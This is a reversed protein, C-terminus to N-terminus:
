DHLPQDYHGRQYQRAAERPRGLIRRPLDCDLRHRGADTQADCPTVTDELIVSLLIRERHCAEIDAVDSDRLHDGVTDDEIQLAHFIEGSHERGHDRAARKAPAGPGSGHVVVVFDAHHPGARILPQVDGKGM